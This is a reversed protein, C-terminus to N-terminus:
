EFNFQNVCRGIDNQIFNSQPTTAGKAEQRAKNYEAFVDPSTIQMIHLIDIVTKVNENDGFSIRHGNVTM